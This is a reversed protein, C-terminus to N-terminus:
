RCGGSVAAGDVVPVSVAADEEAALRENGGTLGLLDNAGAEGPSLLLSLRASSSAFNAVSRSVSPIVLSHRFIIFETLVLSIGRRSAARSFFGERVALFLR